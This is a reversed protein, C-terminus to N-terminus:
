IILVLLCYRRTGSVVASRSRSWDAGNLHLRLQRIPTTLGDSKRAGRVLGDFSTSRDSTSHLMLPWLVMPDASTVDHVRLNTRLSHTGDEAHGKTEYGESSVIVEGNAAKLHFRFEGRTKSCRM